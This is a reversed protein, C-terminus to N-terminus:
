RRPEAANSARASKAIALTAVPDLTQELSKNPTM